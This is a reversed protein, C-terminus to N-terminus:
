NKTSFTGDSYYGTKPYDNELECLISARIRAHLTEIPGDHNNVCECEGETGLDMDGAVYITIAALVGIISIIGGLTLMIGFVTLM